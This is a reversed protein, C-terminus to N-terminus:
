GAIAVSVQRRLEPLLEVEFWPHRKLWGSNRWSPHPLPIIRPA